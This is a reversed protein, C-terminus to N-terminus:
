QVRINDKNIFLQVDYQTQSFHRAKFLLCFIKGQTTAHMRSMSCCHGATACSRIRAARQKENTFACAEESKCSIASGPKFHSIRRVVFFRKRTKTESCRQVDFPNLPKWEARKNNPVSILLHTLLSIWFVWSFLSFLMTSVVSCVFYHFPVFFIHFINSMLNRTYSFTNM